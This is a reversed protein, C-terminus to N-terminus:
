DERNEKEEKRQRWGRAHCVESMSGNAHFLPHGEHNFYDNIAIDTTSGDEIVEQCSEIPIKSDDFEKLVERSQEM